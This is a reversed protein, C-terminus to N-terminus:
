PMERGVMAASCEALERECRGLAARLRNIEARAALPAGYWRDDLQAELEEVRAREADLAALLVPATECVECLCLSGESCGKAVTQRIAREQEPTLPATM